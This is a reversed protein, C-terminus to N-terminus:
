ADREVWFFRVEAWTQDSAVEFSVSGRVQALQAFGRCIGHWSHLYNPYRKVAPSINEFRLRPQGDKAVILQPECMDRYALHWGRAFLRVVNVPSRGLVNMMGSVFNRLLPRDVLDSLSASWCQIARERGLIEIM